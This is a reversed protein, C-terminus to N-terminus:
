PSRCSPRETNEAASGGGLTGRSGRIYVVTVYRGGQPLDTDDYICFEMDKETIENYAITLYVTIILVTLVGLSNSMWLNSPESLWKAYDPYGAWKNGTQNWGRLVRGCIMLVVVPVL